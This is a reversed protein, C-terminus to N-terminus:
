FEFIVPDKKVEITKKLDQERTNKLNVEKEFINLNFESNIAYYHGGVGRM